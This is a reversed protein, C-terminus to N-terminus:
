DIQQAEEIEIELRAADVEDGSVFDPVITDLGRNSYAAERIFFSITKETITKIDQKTISERDKVLKTLLTGVDPNEAALTLMSMKNVQMLRFAFEAAVYQPSVM